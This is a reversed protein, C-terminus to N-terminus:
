WLEVIKRIKKKVDPSLKQYKRFFMKDVAEAESIKHEDDILYNITVDLATGIKNLKDASPRPLNNNEMEWIHSKSSDTLNALQDLTYGKEKRLKYIKDGLTEKKKSFVHKAPPRGRPRPPTVQATPKGRKSPIKKAPM